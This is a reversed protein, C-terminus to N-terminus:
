TGKPAKTSIKLTAKMGFSVTGESRLLTKTTRDYSSTLVTEGMRQGQITLKGTIQARTETETNELVQISGKFGFQEGGWDIPVVEPGALQDSTAGALALLFFLFDVSGMKPSYSEFLNHEALKATLDGPIEAPTTTGTEKKNYMHFRVDAGWLGDNEGLTGKGTQHVKVVTTDIDAKITMPDAIFAVAYSQKEDAKYVRKFVNGPAAIVAASVLALPFALKLRKVTSM